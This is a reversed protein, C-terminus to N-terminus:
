REKHEDVEKKRERGNKREHGSAKRTGEQETLSWMEKLTPTITIVCRLSSRSQQCTRINIESIVRIVAIKSERCHIVNSKLSGRKREM